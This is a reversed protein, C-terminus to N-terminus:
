WGRGVDSRVAPKRNAFQSYKGKLTQENYLGGIFLLKERFDTLSELVPGLEMQSGEGKAWWHDTPCNCKAAWRMAWCSAAFNGYSPM